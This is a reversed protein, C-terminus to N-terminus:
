IYQHITWMEQTAMDHYPNSPTYVTYGKGEFFTKWQKWSKATVFLGHAFVITKSKVM